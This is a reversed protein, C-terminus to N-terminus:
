RNKTGRAEKQNRMQRKPQQKMCEEAAIQQEKTLLNWINEHLEIRKIAAGNRKDSIQNTLKKAKNFDKKRLAERKDIKLTEVDARNQINWKQDQLGLAEIQDKQADTLELENLIGALPMGQRNKGMQQGRDGHDGREGRQHMRQQGEGRPGDCDFSRQATLAISGLLLVALLLSIKKMTDEM